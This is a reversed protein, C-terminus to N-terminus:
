FYSPVQLVLVNTQGHNAPLALMMVSHDEKLPWLVGLKISNGGYIHPDLLAPLISVDM